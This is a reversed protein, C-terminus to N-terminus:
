GNIEERKLAFGRRTLCLGRQRYEYREEDWCCGTYRIERGREQVTLAFPEAVPEPSADVWQILELEWGGSGSSIAVPGAVAHAGVLRRGQKRVTRFSEVGTQIRDGCLIQWRQGTQWGREGQIVPETVTLTVCFCDSGSLYEMEGVRCTMGKGCLTQETRSAWIQCCWGGLKRPTLIRVTYHILCGIADLERLGVAAMPETVEIRKGAPSEEGAPIGSATLLDILRNLFEFEM